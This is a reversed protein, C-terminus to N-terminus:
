WTFFSPVCDRIRQQVEAVTGLGDIIKWGERTFLDRYADRVRRMMEHQAEYRDRREPRRKISEEVPIDILIYLDPTPLQAHITRLFSESLGNVTGYVWGSAYYRDLVVAEHTLAELLKPADEYRNLTMLCQFLLENLLTSNADAGATYEAKWKRKLHADILPGTVNTYNPFEMREAGRQQENLWQVLLKTQTAKGSGDIGEVAILPHKSM